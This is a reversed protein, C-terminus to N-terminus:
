KVIVKKGGKIYIGKVPKTVRRGALDYIETAKEGTELISLIEEIGTADGFDFTLGQVEADAAVTVYAKFGNVNEGTYPYFGVQGNQNQLTYVNEPAAVTSITGLLANGEVATAEEAIEFNYTGEAAKVLVATNAPIVDAVQSLEITSKETDITGTYVEVDAPITLATPAFLTAYGAASVTVPLETVPEVTWLTNNGALSSNRNAQQPNTGKDHNYLYRGGGGTIASAHFIYQGNGNDIVEWTNSNGVAGTESTKYTYLGSAYNLLHKDYDYYFISAATTGDEIMPMRSGTAGTTLYMENAVGKLRYFAKTPIDTTQAYVRCSSGEDNGGWGKLTGDQHNLYSPDDTLKWAFSHEIHGNTEYPFFINRDDTESMVSITNNGNEPKRLTMTEGAAQNYIKFGNFPDGVFAWRRNKPAYGSNLDELSRDRSLVINNEEDAEYTWNYSPTQNGHMDVAYWTANAFSESATFPLNYTCPITVTNTADDYVLEGMTVFAYTVPAEPNDIDYNGTISKKVVGNVTYNYTVNEILGGPAEVEHIYWASCTNAGAAWNFIDGSIGAGGGHLGAHAPYGSINVNFQGPVNLYHLETVSVEDGVTYTMNSASTGQPYKGDAYNCIAYGGETPVITWIQKKDIESLNRWKAHAGDSYMAKKVGQQEEFDPYANIIMYFKGEEPMIYDTLLASIIETQANVEEATANSKALVAQATTIKALNEDTRAIYGPDTGWMSEDVQGLVANLAVKAVDAGAADFEVETFTFTGGIDTASAAATWVGLTSGVDNLHTNETGVLKFQYGTANNKYLGFLVGEEAFTCSQNTTNTVYLQKAAGAAPNYIKFGNFPDGTFAFVNFESAEGLATTSHEVHGNDPNYTAYKLPSRHITLQYWHNGSAFAGDISSVSFPLNGFTVDYEGDATVTGAPISYFASGSVGIEVPPFPDGEMVERTQTGLVNGNADKIHYTINYTPLDINIPYIEWKGNADNVDSWNTIVYNAESPPNTENTTPNMNAYTNNFKLNWVGAAASPKAVLSFVTANDASEVVNPVSVYKGNKTKLKFSESTGEITFVYSESLTATAPTNNLFVKLLENNAGSVGAFAWGPRGGAGKILYEQGEVLSSADTIAHGVNYVVVEYLNVVSWNGTGNAFKIGSTASNVNFYTTAGNKATTTLRITTADSSNIGSALGTVANDPAAATFWAATEKAGFTASGDHGAPQQIYGEEGTKVNRLAFKDGSENYVLEFACKQEYESCGPETVKLWNSNNNAIAKIAVMKGNSLQDPTLLGAQAWANIWGTLLFLVSLFTIKRM